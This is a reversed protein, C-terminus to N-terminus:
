GRATRHGSATLYDPGRPRTASGRLGTEVGGRLRTGLGRRRTVLRRGGIGLGCLGTAFGRLGTVLRRLGRGGIASGLPAVSRAGPLVVPSLTFTASVGHTAEATSAM